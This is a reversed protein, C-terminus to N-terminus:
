TPSSWCAIGDDALSKGPDLIAEMRRLFDAVETDTLVRRLVYGDRTFDDRLTSM